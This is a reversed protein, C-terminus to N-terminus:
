SLQGTVETTSSIICNDFYAQIFTSHSSIQTCEFFVGTNDRFACDIFSMYLIDGDGINNSGVIGVCGWCNLNTFLGFAAQEYLTEGALSHIVVDSVGRFYPTEGDQMTGTQGTGYAM